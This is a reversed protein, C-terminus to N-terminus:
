CIFTCIKYCAFTNNSNSTCEYANHNIDHVNYGWLKSVLTLDPRRKWWSASFNPSGISLYDGGGSNLPPGGISGASIIDSPILDSVVFDTVYLGDVFYYLRSGSSSPYQIELGHAAQKTRTLMPDNFQTGFYNVWNSQIAIFTSQQSSQMLVLRAKPPLYNRRIELRHRAGEDGFGFPVSTIYVYGGFIEGFREFKQTAGQQAHSLPTFLLLTLLTIAIIFLKNKM